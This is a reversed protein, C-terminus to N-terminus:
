AANEHEADHGDELDENGAEYCSLRDMQEGTLVVTMVSKGHIVCDDVHANDLIMTLLEKETSSRRQKPFATAKATMM